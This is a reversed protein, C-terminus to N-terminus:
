ISSLCLMERWRSVCFFKSGGCSVSIDVYMACGVEARLVFVEVRLVFVEVRLM